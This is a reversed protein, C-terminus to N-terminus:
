LTNRLDLLYRPHVDLFSWYRASLVLGGPGFGLLAMNRVLAYGHEGIGM